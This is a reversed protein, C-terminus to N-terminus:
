INGVVGLRITMCQRNVKGDLMLYTVTRQRRLGAAESWKELKEKFNKFIFLSESM